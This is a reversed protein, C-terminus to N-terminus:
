MPAIYWKHTGLCLRCEYRMQIMSLLLCNHRIYEGPSSSRPKRRLVAKLYLLRPKDRTNIVSEITDKYITSELDNFPQQEYFASEIEQSNRYPSHGVTTLLRFKEYDVSSKEISPDLLIWIRKKRAIAFGLEFLVNHNLNTIDCIFLDREQIAECIAMMIFKGAVSTSKWGDITVVQAQRIREIAAEITEALSAPASPYAVFCTVKGSM